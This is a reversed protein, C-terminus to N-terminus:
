SSSANAELPTRIARLLAAGAPSKKRRRKQLSEVFLLGSLRLPTVRDGDPSILQDGRLRWGQWANGLDLVGDVLVQHMFDDAVNRSM